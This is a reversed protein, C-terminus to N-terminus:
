VAARPEPEVALDEVALQDNLEIQSQRITGTPLELMARAKFSLGSMRNPILGPWLGVVKDSPDLAVVDIAFKMGLTHVASSPRILLGTGPDLGTERLLGILRTWMTDAMAVRTGIVTGKTRNKIQVTKAPLM